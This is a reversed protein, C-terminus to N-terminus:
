RAFLQLRYEGPAPFAIDKMHASMDLIARRDPFDLEMEVEFLPTNEEDADILRMKIPILGQGDTLSVHAALIPHVAPFNKAAIDSFVGLLTRKKTSPDIWIADCIVMALAIPPPLEEPM